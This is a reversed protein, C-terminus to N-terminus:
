KEKKKYCVNLLSFLHFFIKKKKIELSKRSQINHLYVLFDNWKACLDKNHKNKSCCLQLQFYM